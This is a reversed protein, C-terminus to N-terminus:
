LLLFLILFFSIILFICVDRHIYPYNVNNAKMEIVKTCIVDLFKSDNKDFLRQLLLPNNVENISKTQKVTITFKNFYIVFYVFFYNDFFM